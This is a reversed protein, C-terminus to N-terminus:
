LPPAARESSARSAYTWAAALVEDEHAALHLRGLEGRRQPLPEDEGRARQPQHHRHRRRRLRQLLEEDEDPAHEEASELLLAAEADVLHDGALVQEEGQQRLVM